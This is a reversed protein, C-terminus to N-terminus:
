ILDAPTRDPLNGSQSTLGFIDISTSLEIVQQEPADLLISAVSVTALGAALVVGLAIKKLM